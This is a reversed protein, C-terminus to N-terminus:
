VRLGGPALYLKAPAGVHHLSDQGGSCGGNAFGRKAGTETAYTALPETHVASHEELSQRLPRKPGGEPHQRPVDPTIRIQDHESRHPVAERVIRRIEEQVHRVVLSEAAHPDAPGM